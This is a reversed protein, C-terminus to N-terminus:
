LSRKRNLYKQLYIQKMKKVKIFIPHFHHHISFSELFQFLNSNDSTNKSLFFQIRDQIFKSLLFEPKDQSDSQALAPLYIRELSILLNPLKTCLENNSFLDFLKRGKFQYSAKNKTAIKASFSLSLTM